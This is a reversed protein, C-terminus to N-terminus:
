WLRQMTHHLAVLGGGIVRILHDPTQEVLQICGAASIIRDDDQPGIVSIVEAVLLTTHLERQPFLGVMDRKDDHSRTHGLRTRNATSRDAQDVDIRGEDFESPKRWLSIVISGRQDRKELIRISRPTAGGQHGFTRSVVGNARMIITVNSIVVAGVFEIRVVIRPVLIIERGVLAIGIYQGLMAPVKRFRFSGSDGGSM